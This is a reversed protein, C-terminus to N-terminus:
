GHGILSILISHFRFQLDIIGVQIKDLGLSIQGLGAPIIQHGPHIIFPHGAGEALPFLGCDVTWLGCGSFLEVFQAFCILLNRFLGSKFPMALVGRKAPSVAIKFENIELLTLNSQKLQTRKKNQPGDVTSQKKLYNRPSFPCAIFPQPFISLM